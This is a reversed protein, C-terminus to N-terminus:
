PAPKSPIPSALAAFMERRFHVTSILDQVAAAFNPSWTELPVGLRDVLQDALRTALRMPAADTILQRLAPDYIAGTARTARQLFDIVAASLADDWDFDCALLMAVVNAHDSHPDGAARAAVAAAQEAPLVEMLALIAQRRWQVDVPADKVAPALCVHALLASAWEGDRQIRVAALWGELLAIGWESHLAAVIWDAERQNHQRWVKLPALAVIQMLLSAKEGLTRQARPEVGDRKLEADAADPLTAEIKPPKMKLLGGGPKLTLSAHVRSTMRQSLASDPLRSLLEAATTRVQKSRDDLCSELWPEDDGALGHAFQELLTTRDAASESGWAAEVLQQAAARDSLRLRRLLALRDDRSDVEWSAANADPTQWLKKWHPRREALWRGRDGTVALLAQLEADDRVNIAIELLRPLAEPPAHWGGAVAAAVWHPLLKQRDGHLIEFLHNTAPRSCLRDDAICLPIEEPTAAASPLGGASQYIALTAIESLLSEMSGDGATASSLSWPSGGAPMCARAGSRDFGLIAANVVDNWCATPHLNM